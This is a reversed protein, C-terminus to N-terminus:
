MEELVEVQMLELGNKLVQSAAKVINIRAEFKEETDAKTVPVVNYFSNFKQALDYLYNALLNPKCEEASMAVHEGFKSLSRLLLNEKEEAGQPDPLIDKSLDGGNKVHEIAEFLSFQEKEPQKAKRKKKPVSGRLGADTLQKAKRLISKARAYTYQLYAASNSEFSLMKDWEFTIDSTRNQSLVNYKVASIGIARAAKQKDALTPNKEEIIKEARKVAEDLVENLLIVNGKRTSMGGEPLQMRGFEVHKGKTYDWNLLKATEFLQKFYLSQAVDVVYLIKSPDWKELRYKYTALDRTSYLTAGDSKRIVLPAMNPDSFNVILAGNEGETFIGKKIGEDIVAQMKDEYFSEGLTFDFTIGGLKDYTTQADKMSVEVVWKWLKRNEEDGDELKKFEDRGKQDLTEDREAEDHFKVYLKLLEPIPDKEVAEKNGWKKYAYILKGFQTGWDGIHNISITTFGRNKYIEYLCQGIITSLLHHVGLPKAINPQSYEVIVTQKKGTKSEGYEDGEKLIKTINEDLAEDSLYFNIFGPGAVEMKEIFDPKKTAKMLEEAVEKPNAKIKNAIKLAINSAYDGHADEKPYEVKMSLAEEPFKIGVVEKLVSKLKEKYSSPDDFRLSEPSMACISSANAHAEQSKKQQEKTEKKVKATQVKKEKKTTEKQALFYAKEKESIKSDDAKKLGEVELDLINSGENLIYVAVDGGIYKEILEQLEYLMGEFKDIPIDNLDEMVVIANRTQDTIKTRECERYNWRRCIVGGRDKYIVEGPKPNKIEITGIPRFSEIGSATTLFVDGFFKDIDEAGVPIVYKLSFYNYLDVLSNIHSILKDELIRQILAEISCKYSSPKAGFKSYAEHWKLIRPDEELSKKEFETKRQMSAGRLLSEITSVRKANNINKATIVGIKLNPYQVFIKPDISFKM